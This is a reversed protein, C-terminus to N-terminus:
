WLDDRVIHNGAEDRKFSFLIEFPLQDLSKPSVAVRIREEDHHSVLIGLWIALSSFPPKQSQATLSRVLVHQYPDRTPLQLGKVKGIQLGHFTSKAQRSEGRLLPSPLKAIRILKTRCFFLQFLERVM